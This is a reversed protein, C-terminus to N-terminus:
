ILIKLIPPNRQNSMIEHIGMQNNKDISFTYKDNIMTQMSCYLLHFLDDKNYSNLYKFVDPFSEFLNTNLLLIILYCWSTSMIFNLDGSFLMRNTINDIIWSEYYEYIYSTQIHEILNIFLIDLVNKPMNVNRKLYDDMNYGDMYYCSNNVNDFVLLMDHRYKNASDIANITIPLYTYQNEKNLSLFNIFDNKNYTYLCIDNDEGSMSHMNQKVYDYTLEDKIKTTNCLAKHVDFSLTKYNLTYCMKEASSIFKTNSIKKILTFLSINKFKIINDSIPTYNIKNIFKDM